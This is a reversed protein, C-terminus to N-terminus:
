GVTKVSQRIFNRMQTHIIEVCDAIPYLDSRVEIVTNQPEEFPSSVGTFDPIEGRRAKAYLGKVDRAECVPLAANVFVFCIDEEGIISTLMQRANETPTIFAAIVVIGAEVFLRAVEAARRLNELRQGETFGLGKNLGARLDDGDLIKSLIGESFLRAELATALTSKGSSPLGFLWIVKARQGLFHEKSFRSIHTAM